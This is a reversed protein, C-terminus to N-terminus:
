RRQNGGRREFLWTHRMPSFTKRVSERCSVTIHSIFFIQVFSIFCTSITWSPRWHHPRFLIAVIHYTTPISLLFALLWSSTSLFYPLFILLFICWVNEHLVNFQHVNSQEFDCMNVQETHQCYHWHIKEIRSESQLSGFCEGFRIGLVKFNLSRNPMLHHFNFCFVNFLQWFRCCDFWHCCWFWHCHLVVSFIHIVPILLLLLFFLSMAM